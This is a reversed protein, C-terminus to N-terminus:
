IIIGFDDSEFSEEKEDGTKLANKQHEIILASFCSIVVRSLCEIDHQDVDDESILMTFKILKGTVIISTFPIGSTNELLMGDIDGILTADIRSNEEVLVKFTDVFDTIADITELKCPIGEILAKILFLKAETELM